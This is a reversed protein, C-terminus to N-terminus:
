RPVEPAVRAGSFYSLDVARADVSVFSFRGLKEIWAQVDVRDDDTIGGLRALTEDDDVYHDPADVDVGPSAAGRLVARIRVKCGNLGKIETGVYTVTTGIIKEETTM